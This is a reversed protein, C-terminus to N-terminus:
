ITAGVMNHVYSPFYTKESCSFNLNTVASSGYLHRLCILYCLHCWAHAGIESNGDLILVMVRSFGRKEKEM